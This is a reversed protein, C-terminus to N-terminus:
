RWRTPAEFPTLGCHEEQRMIPLSQFLLFLRLSRLNKRQSSAKWFPHRALIILRIWGGLMMRQERQRGIDRAAM